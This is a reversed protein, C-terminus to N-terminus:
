LGIRGGLLATFFGASRALGINGVFRKGCEALESQGFHEEGGDRGGSELRRRGNLRARDRRKEGAFVQDPLRLGAGALGGREGQRQQRREIWALASGLREHQDRGALQRDLGGLLNVFERASAAQAHHRHVAALRDVTLEAGEAVGGGHDHPRGSPSISWM